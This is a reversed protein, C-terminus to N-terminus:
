HNFKLLSSKASSIKRPNTRDLVLKIVDLTIVDYALVNHRRVAANFFFGVRLPPKFESSNVLFVKLSM